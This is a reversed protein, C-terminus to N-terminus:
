LYVIQVLCHSKLTPFFYYTCIKGERDRPVKVSRQVPCFDVVTHCMEFSFVYIKDIYLKFLNCSPIGALFLRITCKCQERHVIYPVIAVIWYKSQVSYVPVAIHTLLPGPPLITFLIM